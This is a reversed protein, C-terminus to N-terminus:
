KADSSLRASVKHDDVQSEHMATQEKAYTTAPHPVAQKNLVCATARRALHDFSVIKLGHIDLVDPSRVLKPDVVDYDVFAKLPPDPRTGHV